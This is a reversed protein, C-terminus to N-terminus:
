RDANPMSGASNLVNTVVYKGTADPNSVVVVPVATPTIPDETEPLTKMAGLLLSGFGSAITTALVLDWQIDQIFIVNALVGSTLAQAVTKIVRIAIAIPWPVSVHNVEALGALSTLLSLIGAMAAASLLMLWPVAETYVAPTYTTAVILATRLARIGAARWWPLSLVPVYDPDVTSTM